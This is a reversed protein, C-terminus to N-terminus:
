PNIPASKALEKEVLGSIQSSAASASLYQALQTRTEAFRPNSDDIVPAKRDIVQVITGKSGSMIMESLAGKQLTQISGLVSHDVDTAPERATFAPLTKAEFKLGSATTAAVAKEFTDGAKLRAEIQTRAARGAEVFKKRKENETFDALVRARVEVLQPQRAPLTEEWLLVASGNVTSVADSYYRVDDLKFAAEGVESSGALEAPIADRSFPSVPRATLNREKLFADVNARTIKGEYLALTLNSANQAAIQRSRELVLAAQVQPRVAAFDADPTGTAPLQVAPKGDAGVAAPKPFRAPNADYYARVDADSVRVQGIYASAPFDIARLRVQPSLEYRFTNEEFYKALETEAPEIKPAFSSYDTTAVALTWSTDSQGLEIKVDGPMVYGPGALLKQMAEYRFDDALVRAVDGENAGQNLKLSDRFQAYRAADFSGDQGLFAGRTKVFSELESPTPGPLRLENAMALAAYRHLAFQELRAGSLAPYGVQLFVSLQADGMVRGVDEQNGLNAGFFPRSMAKQGSNGLGPSAGITFVFAVIILALLVLFIIRFHQQFTKQIWSIM